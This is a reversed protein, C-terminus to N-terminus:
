FSIMYIKCLLLILQTYMENEKTNFPTAMNGIKECIQRMKRANFNCIKGFWAAYKELNQANKELNQRMKRLDKSIVAHRDDALLGTAYASNIIMM